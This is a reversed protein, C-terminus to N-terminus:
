LLRRKIPDSQAMSFTIVIVLQYCEVFEMKWQILSPKPFPVKKFQRFQDWQRISGIIWSGM